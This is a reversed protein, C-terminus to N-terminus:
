TVAEAVTETEDATEEESEGENDSREDDSTEDTSEDDSPADEETEEPDEPDAELVALGRNVLSMAYTEEIDHVEGPQLRGVETGTGDPLGDAVELMKIKM